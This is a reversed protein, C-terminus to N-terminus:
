NCFNNYCLAYPPANKNRATDDVLLVYVMLLTGDSEGFSFSGSLGHFERWQSQHCCPDARNFFLCLAAPRNQAKAAVLLPTDGEHDMVNVEDRGIRKDQLILELKKTDTHLAAAHLATKENTNRITPDARHELLLKVVRTSDAHQSLSAIYLPTNGNEDAADVDARGDRLIDKMILLSANRAAAHLPTRKHRDRITPDAYEKILVHAAYYCSNAAAAFLPTHGNRNTKNMQVRPDLLLLECIKNHGNEAAIHLATKGAVNTVNVDAELRLLEEAAFYCGHEAAKFLSTEHLHNTNNIGVDGKASLMSVFNRFNEDDGCAITALHLAGNGDINTAHVDTNDVRLFAEVRSNPWSELLACATLFPTEQRLNVANINVGDHKSLKNVVLEAGELANHALLHLVTNNEHDRATVDVKANRLFTNLVKQDRTVSIARTIAVKTHWYYSDNGTDRNAHASSKRHAGKDSLMFDLLLSVVAVHSQEAALCLASEVITRHRVRNDHHKDTAAKTKSEETESVFRM